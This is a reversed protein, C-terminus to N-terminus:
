SEAKDISDAIFARSKERKRGDESKEKWKMQTSLNLREQMGLQVVEERRQSRDIMMPAPRRVLADVLAAPFESGM